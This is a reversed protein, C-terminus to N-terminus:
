SESSMMSCQGTYLRCEFSVLRRTMGRVFVFVAELAKLTEAGVMHFLRGSVNRHVVVVELWWLWSLVYKNPLAYPHDDVKTLSLTRNLIRNESSISHKEHVTKLHVLFVIIRYTM